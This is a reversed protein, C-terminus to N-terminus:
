LYQRFWDVTLGAIREMKGPEDLSHNGGKIIELRKPKNAKEYICRANELSVLDDNDGHIVLLPCGIEGVAGCFDYESIDAFFERKIKSGSPLEFIREGKYVKYMDDHPIKFRCPTALTVMAKIRRERAAIAVTGGLSSGVVALRNKDVATAEVFNVAARYDQIRRSLTTDEFRGQSIEEGAGCSRYNFRLYAFGAKYLRSALLLWKNGEKSGEMGHSMIVCPAGEHPIGLNAFIAENRSKFTVCKEM